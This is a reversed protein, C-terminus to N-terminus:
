KHRQLGEIGLSECISSELEDDYYLVGLKEMRYHYLNRQFDDNNSM